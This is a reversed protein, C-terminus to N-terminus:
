ASLAAFLARMEDDVMEDDVLTRAIERRLRERFRKRLRHVAVRGAGESMGFQVAIEAYPLRGSDMSLYPKWRDFDLDREENGLDHLVKDLLAMGWDRDYLTEPTHPDTLEFGLGTEAQQWDISLHPAFGGRKLRHERRWENALYNKLAGLLFARFRGRSRDVARLGDHVHLQTFFGQV